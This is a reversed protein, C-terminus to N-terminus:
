TTERNRRREDEALEGRVLAAEVRVRSAPAVGDRGHEIAVVVHKGVGARQALEEVTLGLTVRRARVSRPSSELHARLARRIVEGRESM